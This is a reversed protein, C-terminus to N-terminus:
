TLTHPSIKKKYHSITIPIIKLKQLVNLSGIYIKINVPEALMERRLEAKM